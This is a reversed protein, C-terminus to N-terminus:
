DDHKAVKATHRLEETMRHLRQVVSYLEQISASQSLTHHMTKEMEASVLTILEKMENLGEFISAASDSTTESLIRIENAVISFGRGHQGARAAEIAANIGIINTKASINRILESIQTTKEIKDRVLVTSTNVQQSAAALESSNKALNETSSVISGLADALEDAMSELRDEKDTSVGTALCGVVEGNDIIPFGAAIYPVGYVERAIKRMVRRKEQIATYNISGPRLPDGPNIKLDLTKAPYYALFKETDTVGVMCDFILGKNLVPAVTLLSHLIHSM